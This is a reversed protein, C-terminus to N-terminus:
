IQIYNDMIEIADFLISREKGDTTNVFIRGEQVQGTGIRGIDIEEFIDVYSFRAINDIRNYKLYIRSADEGQKLIPRLQKLKSHAYGDDKTSIKSYLKRFNDYLRVKEKNVVMEDGGVIFPRLELNKGDDTLYQQRIEEVSGELEGFSIHWDISSLKAGNNEPDIEAGFRKAGSCLSEALEYALYFPYKQHVIAVGACAEYSAQDVPNIKDRLCEIFIRACEIGIRGEAVFCVDDGSTIIRRVPFMNNKLILESLKGASVAEGVKLAMERYSEKFDKDVGESFERIQKKYGDWNIGANNLREYLAEVRKGMSNGDIHVVAIFNSEGKKGGLDEFKKASVFGQPILRDPKIEKVTEDTVRVPKMNFSSLKEVGFTGQHFSTKRLSKKKELQKTLEKLNEGPSAEYSYPITKIFLEMDPYDRMVSRSLKGAFKKAADEGSFCLVTHGGGSYVMNETEDYLGACNQIFYESGTVRVIDESNKINDQLKNSAFIYAQKQSVEVIMLQRNEMM